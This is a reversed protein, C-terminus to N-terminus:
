DIREVRINYASFPEKEILYTEDETQIELQVADGNDYTEWGTISDLEVSNKIDHYTSFVLSGAVFIIAFVWLGFLINEIKSNM